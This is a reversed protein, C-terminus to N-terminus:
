ESRGDDLAPIGAPSMRNIFRAGHGSARQTSGPGTGKLARRVESRAALLSHESNDVGGLLVTELAGSAGRAGPNEKRM